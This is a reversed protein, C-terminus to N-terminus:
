SLVEVAMPISNLKDDLETGKKKKNNEFHEPAWIKM